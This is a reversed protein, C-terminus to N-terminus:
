EDIDEYASSSDDQPEELVTLLEKKALSGKPQASLRRTVHNTKYDYPSFKCILDRLMIIKLPKQKDDVLFIHNTKNEVVIALLDKLTDEKKCMVPKTDRGNEKHVADMFDKVTLYQDTLLFSTAEPGVGVIDSESVSSVVRKKEMVAIVDCKQTLFKKFADKALMTSPVQVIVENKLDREKVLGIKNIPADVVASMRNINRHLYEVIDWQSVWYYKQEEVDDDEDDSGKASPEVYEENHVLIHHVGKSFSELCSVVADGMTFKFIKPSVVHSDEESRIIDMLPASKWDSSHSWALMSIIDLRSCCHEFKGDLDNYVPLADTGSASQNGQCLALLAEELTVTQKIYLMKKENNVVVALPVNQLYEEHVSSRRNSKM